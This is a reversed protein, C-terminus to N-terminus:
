QANDTSYHITGGNLREKHRFLNEKLACGALNFNKYIIWLTFHFSERNNAVGMRQLAARRLMLNWGQQRLHQLFGAANNLTWTEATGALAGANMIFAMAFCIVNQLQNLMRALLMLGQRTIGAAEAKARMDHGFAEM